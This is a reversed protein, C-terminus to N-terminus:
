WQLLVVEQCFGPGMAMMLGYAGPEPPEASLTQELIYLITPSSINGIKALAERSLQLDQESLAFEDEVASIIKPGGPHVLWRSIKDVSLNHKSLLPEIAERLGVKVFDTVEPRLVNRTGTDVIDMGMLHVTNPLLFSHSDIVRPQGAQALPHQDGVMLVAGAGDGFLAATVIAMIIDSYLTPEDPLRKIM